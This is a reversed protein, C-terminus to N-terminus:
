EKLENIKNKLEYMKSESNEEIESIKKLLAIKFERNSIGCDKM